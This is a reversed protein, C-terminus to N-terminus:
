RRASSGSNGVKGNEAVAKEALDLAQFDPVETYYLRSLDPVNVFMSAKARAEAFPSIKMIREGFGRRDGSKM